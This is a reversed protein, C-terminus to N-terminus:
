KNRPTEQKSARNSFTINEVSMLDGEADENIDNEISEAENIVRSAIRNCKGWNISDTVASDAFFSNRLTLPSSIHNSSNGLYAYSNQASHSEVVVGLNSRSHTRSKKFSKKKTVKISTAKFSCSGLESRRISANLITSECETSEFDRTFTELDFIKKPNEPLKRISKKNRIAMLAEKESTELRELYIKDQSIVLNLWKIFSENSSTETQGELPVWNVKIDLAPNTTDFPTPQASFAASEDEFESESYQVQYRLNEKLNENKLYNSIFLMAPACNLQRQVIIQREFITVGTKKCTTPREALCTKINFIKLNKFNFIPDCISIFESFIKVGVMYSPFSNFICLIETSKSYRPPILMKGSLKWINILDKISNRKIENEAILLISNTRSPAWLSISARTENELLFRPTLVPTVYMKTKIDVPNLGTSNDFGKCTVSSMRSPKQAVNFNLEQYDM